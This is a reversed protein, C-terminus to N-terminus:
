ENVEGGAEQKSFIDILKKITKMRKEKAKRQAENYTGCDRIYGYLHCLANYIEKRDNRSIECIM